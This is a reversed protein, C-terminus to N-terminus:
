TMHQPRKPTSNNSIRPSKGNQQYQQGDNNLKERQLAM